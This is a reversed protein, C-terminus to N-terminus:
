SKNDSYAKYVEGYRRYYYNNKLKKAGNLILCFHKPNHTKFIDQASNLSDRFPFKTNMVFMNVDAIQM